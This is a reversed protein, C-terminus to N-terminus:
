KKFKDDKETIVEELTLITLKLVGNERELEKVRKLLDDNKNLTEQWNEQSPFTKGIEYIDISWDDSEELFKQYPTEPVKEVDLEIATDKMIVNFMVHSTYYEGSNESNCDSKEDDSLTAKM